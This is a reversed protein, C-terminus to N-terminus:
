ALKPQCRWLPRLEDARPAQSRIILSTARVGNFTLLERGDYAVCGESNLGSTVRLFVFVGRSRNCDRSARSCREGSFQEIFLSPESATM